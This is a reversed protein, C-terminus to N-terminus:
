CVGNLFFFNTFLVTKRLSLLFLRSIKILIKALVTIKKICLILKITIIVIIITITVIITINITKAVRSSSVFVLLLILYIPILGWFNKKNM